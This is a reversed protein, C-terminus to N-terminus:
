LAFTNDVDSIAIIDFHVTKNFCSTKVCRISLNVKNKKLITQVKYGPNVRGFM